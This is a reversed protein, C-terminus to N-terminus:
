EAGIGSRNWEVDEFEYEWLTNRKVILKKYSDMKNKGKELLNFHFQAYTQGMVEKAMALTASVSRELWALSKELSRENVLAPLVVKEYKITNLFEKWFSALENRSLNKDKKESYFQIGEIAGNFLHLLCDEMDVGANMIEVFRAYLASSKGRKSEVEFRTFKGKDYIRILTASNRSGWYHTVEM